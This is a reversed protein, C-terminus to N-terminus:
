NNQCLEKNTIDINFYDLPFWRAESVILMEKEDYTNLFEFVTEGESTVELVRGQHPSSILINNNPLVQHVGRAGSYFDEIGGDYIVESQYSAPNIRVIQSFRSDIGDVLAGDNGEVAERMNNNYITITGDPQWDADHPRRVMGSRWWKIRLDDPDIVFVLNTSRHVILLDGSEFMPFAGSLRSPLPEIDNKHIPDHLWQGTSISRRPTFISVDPNALHIDRLTFQRLIEGTELGLQVIDGPGFAWLSQDDENLAVIHHYAGYASWSFNGCFDVNHMGNGRYGENLILTGDRLVELGQPLRLNAPKLKREGDDTSNKQAVIKKLAQQDITWRHIVQNNEDLLIGAHLSDSYDFTGYIFRFGKLEKGSSYLQPLQRRPRLGEIQVRSYDRQPTAQYDYLQRSPRINLDNVIKETVKTDEGDAGKVFARIEQEIPEVVSWPFVHYRVMAYGWGFFIVAVLYSVLLLRRM